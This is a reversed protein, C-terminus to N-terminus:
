GAKALSADEWRCKDLQIEVDFDAYLKQQTRALRVTAFCSAGHLRLCPVLEDDSTYKGVITIAVKVGVEELEHHYQQIVQAALAHVTTPAKEFIKSM